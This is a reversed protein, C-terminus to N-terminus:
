SVEMSHKLFHLSLFESKAWLDFTKCLACYFSVVLVTISTIYLSIMIYWTGSLISIALMCNPYWGAIMLINCLLLPICRTARVFSSIEWCVQLVDPWKGPWKGSGLGMNSTGTPDFFHLALTHIFIVIYIYKYDRPTVANTRLLDVLLVLCSYRDKLDADSGTM